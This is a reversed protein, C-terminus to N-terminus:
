YRMSITKQLRESFFDKFMDNTEATEEIDTYIGDILGNYDNSAMTSRVDNEWTKYESASVFYMFHYGFETEVLDADGPKRAPDIAWNTFEAVYNGDASVDDYLGGTEISATDGTNDAVLEIFAEETAGNDKWTQMVKEANAKATAFNKDIVDQSLANGSEDTTEATFLIHRVATNAVSEDAAAPKVVYIVYYSEAAEDDIVAKDAVKREDDFLWNAVAESSSLDAAYADTLLTAADSEYSEVMSPPAYQKALTAFSAETTIKSKFEEARQKAQEKTYVPDTSGEEAEAYSVSFFRASATVFDTKNENFYADVDEKSYTDTLHEQYWTLYEQAIADKELLARYSKESLGEGCVRAIYNDLAFDNEEASEQLSTITEDISTNIETQLEETIEFGAEKAEESTARKYMADMLFARTAAMEKFYDSWTEVSEPADDYPYEQEAPDLTCDFGTFYSGYGSGYSSYMSEYEYSMQYIQNYLSMYYYNYETGSLKEDDFSSVTLVKQPVNFVNLLLNGVFVGVLSVCLVIALVKVIIRVAKDRKASHKKNKAKELREKRQERYIEANTKIENNAM